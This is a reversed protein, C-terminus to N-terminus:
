PIVEYNMGFYEADIPYCDGPTDIRIYDGPSVNIASNHLQNVVYASGDDRKRLCAPHNIDDPHYQVVGIRGAKRIANIVEM